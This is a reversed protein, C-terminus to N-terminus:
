LVGFLNVRILPEWSGPDTQLFFDPRDFGANNVLCDIGGFREVAGDRAAGVSDVDGVDCRLFSARGGSVEIEAVVAPGRERDIDTVAVTFGESALRLAIARGLGSAAGTVFAVRGAEDRQERPSGERSSPVGSM